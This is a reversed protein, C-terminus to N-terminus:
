GAAAAPAPTPQVALLTWGAATRAYVALYFNNLVKTLSIAPVNVTAVMRGLVAATDGIIRIDEEPQEMTSFYFVRNRIKGLYVDKSDRVGDSHTFVFEDAFLADLAQVDGQLMADHRQRELDHIAAVDAPNPMKREMTRIEGEM